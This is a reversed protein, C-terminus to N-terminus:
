CMISTKIVGSSCSHSCGVKNTLQIFNNVNIGLPLFLLIEDFNMGNIEKLTLHGDLSLLTPIRSGDNNKAISVYKNM